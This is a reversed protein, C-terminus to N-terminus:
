HTAPARRELTLASARLRRTELSASKRGSERGSTTHLQDRSRKALSADDYAPLTVASVEVLDVRVLRRVDPKDEDEEFTWEVERARFGFSMGDVNGAEVNHALDRGAQTDPLDIEVRLGTDDEELRLTKASRRGIVAGVDLSHSALARVDDGRRLSEAFAGPAIEEVMFSFIEAQKDFVAAYGVLTGPSGDGEQARVEISAKGHAARIEKQPNSPQEKPMM